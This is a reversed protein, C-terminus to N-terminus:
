DALEFVRTGDEETEVIFGDAVLGKLAADISEHDAFAQVACERRIQPLEQPGCATLLCLIAARNAEIAKKMAPYM